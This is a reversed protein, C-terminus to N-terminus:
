SVREGQRQLVRGAQRIEAVAAVSSPSLATLTAPTALIATALRWIGLIRTNSPRAVVVATRREARPSRADRRRHKVRPPAFQAAQNGFHSGGFAPGIFASIVNFMEDLTLRAKRGQAVVDGIEPLPQVFRPSDNLPRFSPVALPKSISAEAVAAVAFANTRRLAAGPVCRRSCPPTGVVAVSAVDCRGCLCPRSARM